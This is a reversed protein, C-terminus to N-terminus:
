DSSTMPRFSAVRIGAYRHVLSRTTQTLETGSERIARRESRVDPLELCDLLLFPGAPLSIQIECSSIKLRNLELGM